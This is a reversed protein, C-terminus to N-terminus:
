LVLAYTVIGVVITWRRRRLWPALRDAEREDTTRGSAAPKAVPTAERRAAPVGREGRCHDPHNRLLQAKRADTQAVRGPYQSRWLSPPPLQPTTTPYNHKEQGQPRSVVIGVIFSRTTTRTTTPSNFAIMLITNLEGVVVRVVVRDNITSITIDLGCFCFFCM